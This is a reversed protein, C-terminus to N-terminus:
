PTADFGAAEPDMDYKSGFYVSIIRKKMEDPADISKNKKLDKMVDKFVDDVVDKPISLYYYEM